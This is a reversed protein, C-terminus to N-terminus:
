EGGPSWAGAAPAAGTGLAHAGAGLAYPRRRREPVMAIVAGLTLVIGGAWIWLVLPTVLIRLAARGDQTWGTLVVYLDDRPTSRLAVDTTQDQSTLFLNRRADFVGLDRNGAFVRLAAGISLAGRQATQSLGEFRVRYEGITVAEGPSLTAVRQTAFVSSGTVGCVLLLMGLHVIYGGYRRHHRAV